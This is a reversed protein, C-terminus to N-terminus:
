KKKSKKENPYRSFKLIYNANYRFKKINTTGKQRDTDSDNKEQKRSKKLGKIDLNAFKKDRSLGLSREM